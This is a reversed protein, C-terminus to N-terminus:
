KKITANMIDRMHMPTNSYRSSRSHYYVLSDIHPLQCHKHTIDIYTNKKYQQATSTISINNDLNFMVTKRNHRYRNYSVSKCYLNPINIPQSSQLNETIDKSHKYKRHQQKNNTRFKTQTSNYISSPYRSYSLSNNSANSTSSKCNGM